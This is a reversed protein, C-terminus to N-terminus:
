RTRELPGSKHSVPLDASFDEEGSGSVRWDPLLIGYPPPAPPEPPASLAAIRARRSEVQYMIYLGLVVSSIILVTAGISLVAKSTDDM